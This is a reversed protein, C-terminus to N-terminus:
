LKAKISRMTELLELSNSQPQEGNLEVYLDPKSPTTKKTEDVPNNTTIESLHL